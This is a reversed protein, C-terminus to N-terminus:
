VPRAHQAGPATLGSFEVEFGGQGPRKLDLQVHLRDCVERAVAL